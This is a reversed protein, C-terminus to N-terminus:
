NLRLMTILTSAVEIIEIVPNIKSCTHLTTRCDATTLLNLQSLPLLYKDYSIHDQLIRDDLHLFFESKYRRQEIM